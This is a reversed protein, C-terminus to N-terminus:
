GHHVRFRRSGLVEALLLAPHGRGKEISSVSIKGSPLAWLQLLFVLFRVQSICTLLNHIKCVINQLKPNHYTLKEGSVIKWLSNLAYISFQSKLSVSKNLYTEQINDVAMRM